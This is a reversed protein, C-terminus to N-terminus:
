RGRLANYADRDDARSQLREERAKAQSIRADYNKQAMFDKYKQKQVHQDFIPAKKDVQFRPKMPETMPNLRAEEKIKGAYGEVRKRFTDTARAERDRLISVRKGVDEVPMTELHHRLNKVFPDKKIKKLISKHVGVLTELSASDGIAVKEMATKVRVAQYSKEILSRTAKGSATEVAKKAAEVAYREAAPIYNYDWNFDRKGLGLFATKEPHLEELEKVHHEEDRGIEAMRAKVKPDETSSHYRRYKAVAAQEDALSDAIAAADSAIKLLYSM